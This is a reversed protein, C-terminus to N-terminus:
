MKRFFDTDKSFNITHTCCQISIKVTPPKLGRVEDYTMRSKAYTKRVIKNRKDFLREINDYNGLMHRVVSTVIARNGEVSNVRKTKYNYDYDGIQKAITGGKDNKHIEYVNLKVDTCGCAPNKCYIDLIEYNKENLALHFLSCPFADIYAFMLTLDEHQEEDFEINIDDPNIQEVQMFKRHQYVGKLTKWDEETLGNAFLGQIHGGNTDKSYFNEHFQSHM